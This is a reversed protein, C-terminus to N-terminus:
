SQLRTDGYWQKEIDSIRFLVHMYITISPYNKWDWSLETTKRKDILEDSNHHFMVNQSSDIWPEFSWYSCNGLGSFKCTQTKQLNPLLPPKSPPVNPKPGPSRPKIWVECTVNCKRMLNPNYNQLKFLSGSMFYVLEIPCVISQQTLSAMVTLCSLKIKDKCASRACAVTSVFDVITIFFIINSIDCFTWNRGSCDCMWM